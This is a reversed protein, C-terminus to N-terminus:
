ARRTRRAVCCRALSENKKDRDIPVPFELSRMLEFESRALQDELEDLSLRYMVMVEESGTHESGFAIEREDGQKLDAVVFTFTGGDRLIRSTERFVCGVDSFFQLVGLCIAHDMSGDTYPYPEVTLDHRRLEEAFAKKRCEELMEPSLDMGYVHLGGKHFLVSSLGTGIGIDLLREGPEIFAYSLGFAVEPGRWGYEEAKEDYGEIGSSGRPADETSM